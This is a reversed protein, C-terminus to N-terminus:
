RVPYSLVNHKNLFNYPPMLVCYTYIIIDIRLAMKHAGTHGLKFHM